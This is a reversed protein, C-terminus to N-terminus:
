LTLLSAAPPRKAVAQRRLLNICGRARLHSETIQAQNQQCELVYELLSAGEIAPVLNGNGLLTCGYTYKPLSVLPEFPKIPLEQEVLLCDVELALLEGEWRVLLMPLDKEEVTTTAVPVQSNFIKLM